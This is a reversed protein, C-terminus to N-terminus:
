KINKHIFFAIDSNKKTKSSVGEFSQQGKPLEVM